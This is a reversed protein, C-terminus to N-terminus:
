TGVRKRTVDMDTQVAMSDIDYRRLNRCVSSGYCHLLADLLSQWVAGTCYTAREWFVVCVLSFVGGM